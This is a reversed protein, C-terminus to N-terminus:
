NLRYRSTYNSYFPNFNTNWFRQVSSITDALSWSKEAPELELRWTSLVINKFIKEFTFFFEMTWIRYFLNRFIAFLFISFNKKECRNIFMSIESRNPYFVGKLPDDVKATVFFRIKKKSIEFRSVILFM